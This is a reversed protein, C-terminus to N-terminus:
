GTGDAATACDVSNDGDGYAYSYDGSVYVCFFLNPLLPLPLEFLCSRPFLSGLLDGAAARGDGSGDVQGIRTLGDENEHWSLAGPVLAGAVKDSHLSSLNRALLGSTSRVPCQVNQVLLTSIENATGQVFCVPSHSLSRRARPRQRQSSSVEQIM